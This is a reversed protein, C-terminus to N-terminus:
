NIPFKYGNYKMTHSGNIEGKVNEDVEENLLM